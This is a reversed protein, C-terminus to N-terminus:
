QPDDCWMHGVASTSVKCDFCLTCFHKKAWSLSTNIYLTLRQTKLNQKNFPTFFLIM